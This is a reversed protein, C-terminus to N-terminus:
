NNPTEEEPPGETEGSEAEADPEPPAEADDAEAEAAAEPPAETEGGEAGANPEPPAETEGSEAEADPEPPAEADDAPAEPAAEPAAETEGPETEADTQPDVAADGTEEAPIEGADEAAPTAAPADAPAAAELLEADPPREAHKSADGSLRKVEVRRNRDRGQETDNDAIFNVPGYAKIVMRKPDIGKEVVWGKVVEGRRRAANMNTERGGENDTYIGVEFKVDYWYNAADVLLDLWAGSGPYLEVGYFRVNELVQPEDKDLRVRPCGEKDIKQNQPTNPCLDIGDLVRDGDGDSPCGKEDVTAGRPTLVCEDIGDFVGDGDADHPCGPTASDPPDVFAGLPTGQCQDIGDFVTDGDSDLPCGVDNVIAGAPTDACEDIGDPVADGDSDLPCGREDVPWGRPTDPCVDIGEMVGDLDLDWPCGDHKDVLSGTPTDPCRDKINLVGDGDLDGPSGGGFIWSIGVNVHQNSYSDDMAYMNEFEARFSTHAGLRQRIGGGVSFMTSNDDGLEAPTLEPNGTYNAAGVAFLIYPKFRRRENGPNILFRLTYSDLSFTRGPNSLYVDPDAILISSPGKLTMDSTTMWQFELEYAPLFNWGVRVGYAPEGALNINSGTWTYGGFLNFEWSNKREEANLPTGPLVFLSLLLSSAILVGASRHRM